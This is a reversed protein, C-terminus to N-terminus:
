HIKWSGTADPELRIRQPAAVAQPNAPPAQFEEQLTQEIWRIRSSELHREDGSNDQQSVHLADLNSFMRPLERGRHLPVFCGVLYSQQDPRCWQVQMTLRLSSQPGGAGFLVLQEGPMCSAPLRLCAGAISYDEVVAQELRGNSESRVWSKWGAPYRLHARLGDCQHETLHDPVPTTLFAGLRWARGETQCWHVVARCNAVGSSFDRFLVMRLPTSFRLPRDARFLLDTRALEILEAALPTGDETCVAVRIEEGPARGALHVNEASSRGAPM